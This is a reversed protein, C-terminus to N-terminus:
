NEIQHERLGYGEDPSDASDGIPEVHIMIDYVEVRKKIAKEVAEAIAHAERVTLAPDVEIDMDIDWLGAVRRMRARHPNGAGRVSHVAEFVLHYLEKTSGDMLERNTELFIEVAAKIVWLGVLIAAISDVAGIGTLRSLLLGLLVGLSVGADVGMNKANAMLMPSGAKKGFVHQTYALVLKGAISALTALLASLGPAPRPGGTFLRVASSWVLQGGAFFLIFSFLATAVTEARGHGWPHEADAPRSIVSAVALSLAAIGLDVASDIGDGLVALSGTHLGFGIKLGSLLLNGLLAALSATKILRAKDAPLM